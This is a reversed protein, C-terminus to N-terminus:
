FHIVKINDIYVDTSTASPDIIMQLFQEFYDADTSYSVIEKLNIYTKKWVPTGTQKNLRIYPHTKVTGPLTIALVGTLIDNTNKYEIELFVEAGQKPLQMGDHTTGTWLSDTQNLAIHGCYGTKGPDTHPVQNITANSNVDTTFKISASEFDEVFSFQTISSYRTVPTLNVTEGKVLNITTKYSECFPYIMKGQLAIGNNIIAPFIVIEKDGELMIPIKIPLEFVGVIKNDVYVFAQSFNHNLEGEAGSLLPNAVLQWKEIKLWAPKPNNKVCSTLIVLFFGIILTLKAKLRLKKNKSRSIDSTITKCSATAAM